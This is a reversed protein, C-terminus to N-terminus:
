KVPGSYIPLYRYYVELSLTAMSTVVARGSEGSWEGAPDWSGQENGTQKQSSVLLQRLRQNWEEWVPGQHQYLALSGYYWFYFSTRAKDPLITKLYEASEQMKPADRPTGLLQRAFMAEAVMAPKPNRDMYGYLGARSGGAASDLWKNALDFTKPPVPIGALEASKLAILQWGFVSTDGAEGPQYRWGGTQANQARVIFGTIKEVPERLGADKTLGCAEALAITAIGHDYMSGGDGRLDGDPKIKAALWKIAKGVPEKYPGDKQHTAGWGLYCLTVLGTAAVDHGGQGGFRQIAWHGDAEQNRTFWDLSRKIAGESEGSGGLAQLAKDRIAPDRLM